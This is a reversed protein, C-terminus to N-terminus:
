DCLALLRKPRQAPECKGAPCREIYVPLYISELSERVVYGPKTVSYYGAREVRISFTGPPLDWFMFDGEPGTATTGCAKGNDCLLTVDASPVPPSDALLPRQDLAVRGILSGTYDGIRLLHAYDLVAQHDGCFTSTLQLAPLERQDGQSIRISRLTLPSFGPRSLQLDYEGPPLASFSYVGLSDTVTRFARDPAAESTLEAVVQPIRAGSSHAVIGTLRGSQAILAAPLLLAVLAALRM